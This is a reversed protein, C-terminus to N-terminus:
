VDLHDIKELLSVMRKKAQNNTEKLLDMEGTLAKLKDLLIKKEEKLSQIYKILKEIKEELLVFYDRDEEYGM